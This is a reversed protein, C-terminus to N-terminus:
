LFILKIAAVMLVTALIRKMVMQGARESGWRSGLWGGAFALATLLIMYDNLPFGDYAIRALGSVSNILIFLASATATEKMRGWGMLLILPSLIIGGGIGLMGSLLGIVGGIILALVFPPASSIDKKEPFLGAIRMAALVLCGGLLKKYLSYEIKFGAGIFALPVSLILFPIVLNTRFWGGRYFHIFAIGAVFVNLLLASPRMLLVSIGAISMTALYGSAGGHGVSSYLFAIAFVAVPLIM